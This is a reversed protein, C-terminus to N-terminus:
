QGIVDGLIEHRNRGRREIPQDHRGPRSRWQFGDGVDDAGRSSIRASQIEAADVRAAGLVKGRLQKANRRADLHRRNGVLGRGVERGGQQAAVDVDRELIEGAELRRHLVALDHHNCGGPPFSGEVHRGHRSNAM